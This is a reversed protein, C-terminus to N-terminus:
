VVVPRFAIGREALVRAKPGYILSEKGRKPQSERQPRIVLSTFSRSPLVGRYPSGEAYGGGAVICQWWTHCAPLVPLYWPRIKSTCIFNM